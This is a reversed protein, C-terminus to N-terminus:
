TGDPWRAIIVATLTLYPPMIPMADGGGTSGTQSPLGPDALAAATPVTADVIVIGPDQEGHTHAPMEAITITHSSEGGADGVASGYFIFRDTLDPVTFTDADVIFAADLVSYLDPYDVRDYTAGDCILCWDPVARALTMVQGIMACGTLVAGDTGKNIEDAAEQPTAAAPDAQIWSYPNGLNQLTDFVVAWLSPRLTLSRCLMPDAADFVPTPYGPPGAWLM